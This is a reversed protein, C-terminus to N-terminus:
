GFADQWWTEEPPLTEASYKRLSADRGNLFYSSVKEAAAQSARLFAQETNAGIHPTLVVQPFKFLDSERSLPENTFVDLGAAFLHKERLAAILAEEDIVLGRSTNILIAQHQMSKIFERGIFKQTKPTLPVHLSVVDSARLVEELSSRALGLSLFVEDKQYPDHALVKLDFVKAMAAVKAGIRGLGVIGLTKGCLEQGLFDARNPWGQKMARQAELMRKHTALILSWTLEAASQTHASPCYFVDIQRKAAAKLDIHDFGVTATVLCKLKPYDMLFRETVKTQSRIILGELNGKKTTSINQPVFVHFGQEQLFCLSPHAFREAIFISTKETATVKDKRKLTGNQTLFFDSRKLHKTHASSLVLPTRAKEM